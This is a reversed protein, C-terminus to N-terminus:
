IMFVEARTEPPNDTFNFVDICNTIIGNFSFLPRGLSANIDTFDTFGINCEETAYLSARTGLTDSRILVHNANSSFTNIFTGISYISGVRFIHTGGATFTYTGTNFGGAGVWTIIGSNNITGTNLTDVLTMTITNNVTIGPVYVGNSTFVCNTNVVMTSVVGTRTITMAPSLIVNGNVSLAATSTTFTKNYGTFDINRCVSGGGLGTVNGSNATFFVDDASTPITTDNPGGDTSSWATAAGYILNVNRFYKNAM